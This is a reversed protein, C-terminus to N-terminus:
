KSLVEIEAKVTSFARGLAAVQPIHGYSSQLREVSAKSEDLKALLPDRAHGALVAELSERAFATLGQHITTYERRARRDVRDSDPPGLKEVIALVNLFAPLDTLRRLHLREQVQYETQEAPSLPPSEFSAAFRKRVVEEVRREYRSASLENPGPATV